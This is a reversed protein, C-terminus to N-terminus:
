RTQPPSNATGVPPSPQPTPTGEVGAHAIYLNKCVKVKLNALDEEAAVLKRKKSKVELDSDDATPSPHVDGRNAQGRGKAVGRRGDGKRPKAEAAPFLRDNGGRNRMM